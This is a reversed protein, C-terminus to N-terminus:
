ISYYALKFAIELLNQAVSSDQFCVYVERQNPYIRGIVWYSVQRLRPKKKHADRPDVVDCNFLIGHESIPALAKSVWKKDGDQQSFRKQLTFLFYKTLASVFYCQM